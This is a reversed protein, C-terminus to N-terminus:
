GRPRNDESGKIAARGFERLKLRGTVDEDDSHSALTPASFQELATGAMAASAQLQVSTARTRCSGAHPGSRLARCCEWVVADQGGDNSPGRRLTLRLEGAIWDLDRVVRELPHKADRLWTSDGNGNRALWVAFVRECVRELAEGWDEGPRQALSVIRQLWEGIAQWDALHADRYGLDAPIHHRRERAALYHRLM